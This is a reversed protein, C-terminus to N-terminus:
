PVLVELIHVVMVFVCIGISGLRTLKVKDIVIMYEECNAGEGTRDVFSGISGIADINWGIRSVLQDEVPEALVSAVKLSENRRSSFRSRHYCDLLFQFEAIVQAILVGRLSLDVRSSIRLRKLTASNKDIRSVRM